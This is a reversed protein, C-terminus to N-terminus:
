AKKLFAEHLGQAYPFLLIKHTPNVHSLMDDVFIKSWLSMMEWNVGLPIMVRECLDILEDEIPTMNHELLCLWLYNQFMKLDRIFSHAVRPHNIGGGKSVHQPFSRSIKNYVREATELSSPLNQEIVTFTPANVSHRAAGACVRQWPIAIHEEVFRLYPELLVKEPTELKDLIFQNNFNLVTTLFGIARWDRSGLIQRQFELLEPELETALLEINPTLLLAMQKVSYATIREPISAQYIDTLKEYIPASYECIRRTERLDFLNNIYTYLSSANLGAHQLRAGLLTKKIKNVTLARFSPKCALNFYYQLSNSSEKPLIYAKPKYQERYLRILRESASTKLVQTSVLM